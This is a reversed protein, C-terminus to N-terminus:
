ESRGQTPWQTQRLRLDEFIALRSSRFGGCSRLRSARFVALHRLMPPVVLGNFVSFRFMALPLESDYGPVLRESTALRLIHLAQSSSRADATALAHPTTSNRGFVLADQSARLGRVASPM